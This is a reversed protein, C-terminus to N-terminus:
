NASVACFCESKSNKAILHKGTPYLKTNILVAVAVTKFETVYIIRSNGNAENDFLAWV